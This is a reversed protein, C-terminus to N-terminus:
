LSNIVVFDPFRLAHLPVFQKNELLKVQRSDNAIKVKKLLMELESPDFRLLEVWILDAVLHIAQHCDACLTRLEDEPYEWPALDDRYTLHHVQLHEEEGCNWCKCGSNRIFEASFEVWRPDKLLAHYSRRIERNM